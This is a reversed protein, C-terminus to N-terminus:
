GAGASQPRYVTHWRTEGCKACHLRRRPNGAAKWRIGGVDWISREHSCDMCRVKWTRSEAEMVQAWSRPFVTVLLRQVFSM